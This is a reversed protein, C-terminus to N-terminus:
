DLHIADIFDKQAQRAAEVLNHRDRDNDQLLEHHDNQLSPHQRSKENELFDLLECNSRNSLSPSSKSELISKFDFGSTHPIMAASGYRLPVSLDSITRSSPSASATKEVASEAENEITKVKGLPDAKTNILQIPM